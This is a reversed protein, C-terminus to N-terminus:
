TFDAVPLIGTALKVSTEHKGGRGNQTESHGGAVKIILTLSPTVEGVARWFPVHYNGM